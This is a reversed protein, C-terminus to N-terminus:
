DCTFVLFYFSEGGDIFYLFYFLIREGRNLLRSKSSSSVRFSYKIPAKRSQFPISHIKLQINMRVQDNLEIKTENDRAYVSHVLLLFFLICIDYYM